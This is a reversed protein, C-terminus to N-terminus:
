RLRRWAGLRDRIVAEEGNKTPEYYRRGILREPLYTEGPAIGGLDHPYKYGKGHGMKKAMGSSAPLIHKPVPLPGTARVDKLAAGYSTVATNSKPASALYTVAQTLPLVGEPMGVFEYATLANVAVSLAMPDANGIDESAFIVIRRLVFRPDEGSELMRVLYYVAADPDSGRMAKIFASVVGYHEDGAKDYLLTKHAAAEDAVDRTVRVPEGPEALLTADRVALDLVTLARRADGYAGNAILEFAEDEIELNLGGFGERAARRLITVLADADISSLVFVRTRSLLAANLEFSPNETTAGILTVLGREVADLLADQQSKSWRHIEDVFLITREGHQGRAVRAGELTKRLDGVGSLVASMQEFRSKTLRAVLRAITTKGTGPPGWLIMSPVRDAEILRRLLKGEGLLAEQGVVEELRAPRMRDALPDDTNKAEAANDFLDRMRIFTARDKVITM